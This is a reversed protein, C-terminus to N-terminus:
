AYEAKIKKHPVPKFYNKILKFYNSPNNLLDSYKRKDSIVDAIIESFKVGCNRVLFARLGPYQFFVKNLFLGAKIEPLLYDEIMKNYFDSVTEPNMDGEIIASAAFKGSLVASTIGEAIFPDALAAADGTLLVRGNAIKNKKIGVPIIFGHKESKKIEALGLKKIYRDFIENLNGKKSKVAFLGLGVSLHNSKPFVWCYGGPIIGFDFRISSSLRLYDKDNVYLEYEVAPLNAKSINFGAIKSVVGQAGDAAILFRAPYNGKSTNLHVYNKNLEFGTLECNDIVTTGSLKANEILAFDFNERMTLAVLPYNRNVKYHFDADHDIIEVSNFQKEFTQSISGPLIKIVRNVIGGGCTKYRPLFKKEILLVKMGKASLASATVSGAPGSGVIAADFYHNSIM